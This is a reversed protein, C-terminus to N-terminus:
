ANQISIQARTPYAEKIQSLQQKSLKGYKAIVIKEGSRMEITVDSCWLWITRDETVDASSLWSSLEDPTRTERDIRRRLTRSCSWWQKPLWDEYGDKVIQQVVKSGKTMYKGIYGEASSKIKQLNCAYEVGIDEGPLVSRLANRWIEDHREKQVIWKGTRGRGMFVSHIHLVPLGTREYRKEQIETVTVIEGNLKGGKLERKIGLRYLEVIKHFNEHVIQMKDRTLDPITCTAFVARNKGGENEILYAANRVIRAGFSTIGNLGKRKEEKQSGSENNEPPQLATDFNSLPSLGLPGLGMALAVAVTGYARMCCSYLSTLDSDPVPPIPELGFSKVKYIVAEGNPYVKTKIDSTAGIIGSVSNCAISM